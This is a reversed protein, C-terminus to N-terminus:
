SVAATIYTRFFTPASLITGFGAKVLQENAAISAFMASLQKRILFAAIVPTAALCAIWRWDRKESRLFIICALLLPLTIAEQKTWWAFGFFVGTLVFYVIRTSRRPAELGKLFVLVSSFYFTACLVSSRGAVYSVASSFLTHVGFILAGAF